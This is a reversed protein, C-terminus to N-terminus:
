TSWKSAWRRLTISHTANKWAITDHDGGIDIRDLLLSPSQTPNDHGENPSVTSHGVGRATDLAERAIDRKPVFAYALVAADHSRRERTVSRPQLERRLEDGHRESLRVHNATHSGFSWERALLQELEAWSM